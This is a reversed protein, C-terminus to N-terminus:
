HMLFSWGHSITQLFRTTIIIVTNGEKLCNKLKTRRLSKRQDYWEQERKDLVEKINSKIRKVQSSKHLMVNDGTCRAKFHCNSCKSTKEIHICSFALDRECDLNHSPILTLDEDSM